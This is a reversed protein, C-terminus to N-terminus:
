GRAAEWANYDMYPIVGDEKSRRIIPSNGDVEFAVRCRCNISEEPPLSEACPYKAPSGGVDFFEDARRAVDDLERHTDRTRDDLSAQWVYVGNAGQEEADAYAKVRGANAARQGETRAIRTAKYGIINLADALDKSMDKYSKGIALGRAIAKRIYKIASEAYDNKALATYQNALSAAVQDIDFNGWNLAIGNGADIAWASRFYGADYAEPPIRDIDKLTARIAPSLKKMMKSELSVLRNYQTMQAKTLKGDIAYIAYINAMEARMSKLAAKLTRLIAKEGDAITKEIAADAAKSAKNSRATAM